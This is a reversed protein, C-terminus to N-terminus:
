RDYGRHYYKRKKKKKAKMPWNPDAKNKERPIQRYSINPNEDRKGRFIRIDRIVDIMDMDTCSLGGNIYAIASECDNSITFYNYELSRAFKTGEKIALLELVVTTAPDTPLTYRENDYYWYLYATEGKLSADTYIHPM